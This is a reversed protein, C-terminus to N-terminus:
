KTFKFTSIIKEVLQASQKSGYVVIFMFDGQNKENIAYATVNDVDEFYNAKYAEIEGLKIKTFYVQRGDVSTQEIWWTLYSQFDKIEAPYYNAFIIKKTFDMLIQGAILDQQQEMIKENSLFLQETFGEKHWNAPYKVEFLENRYTKWTSADVPEVLQFNRFYSYCEPAGRGASFVAKTAQLSVPNQETSKLLKEMDSGTIINQATGKDSFNVSYIRSSDQQYCGLGFSGQNLFANGSGEKLYDSFNQDDVKTIYFLVYDVDTGCPSDPPCVRHEIKTYGTVNVTGYCGNKEDCQFPGSEDIPEIFKFTSLIQNFIREYELSKDSPMSRVEFIYTANNKEFTAYGSVWEDSAQWYYRATGSPFVVERQHEPAGHGGAGLIIRTEIGKDENEGFPYLTNDILKWDPPYMISFSTSGDNTYVTEGIFTKWEPTASPATTYAPDVVIYVNWPWWNQYFSISTYVAVILLIVASILKPPTLLFQKHPEPSPALSKSLEDM